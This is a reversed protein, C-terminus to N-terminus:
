QQKTVNIGGKNVVKSFKGAKALRENFIQKRADDFTPRRGLKGCKEWDSVLFKLREETQTNVTITDEVESKRQLREVIFDEDAKIIDQSVPKLKVSLKYIRVGLNEIDVLDGEGHELKERLKNGLEKSHSEMWKYSNEGGDLAVSNEAIEQLWVVVMEDVLDQVGKTLKADDLAGLNDPDALLSISAIGTMRVGDCCRISEITFNKDEQRMDFKTVGVIEIPLWDLLFTIGEVRTTTRIGMFKILGMERPNSGSLEKFGQLMLMGLILPIFGWLFGHFLSIAGVTMLTGMIALLTISYKNRMENEKEAVIELPWKNKYQFKM